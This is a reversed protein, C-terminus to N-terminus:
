NTETFFIELKLKNSENAVDVNSGFLITGLPNITSMVPIDIAESNGMAESTGIIGINSSVALSLRANASDRVIIDNIHETLRVTYKVGQGGVEELIGDYNPFIELPEQSLNPETFQNYIPLNTESNYLYLRPPEIVNGGSNDM